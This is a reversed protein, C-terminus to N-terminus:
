YNLHTIHSMNMSQSSLETENAEFQSIYQVQAEAEGAGM